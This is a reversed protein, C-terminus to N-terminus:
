VYRRHGLRSLLGIPQDAKCGSAGVQCAAKKTQVSQISKIDKPKRTIFPGVHVHLRFCSGRLALDTFGCIKAKRHQYGLALNASVAGHAQHCRDAFGPFEGDGIGAPTRRSLVLNPCLRVIAGVLRDAFNHFRTSLKVPDINAASTPSAWNLPANSESRSM